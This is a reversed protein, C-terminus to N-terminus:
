GGPEVVMSGLFLDHLMKRDSRRAAVLASVIWWPASAVGLLGAVPAVWGGGGLAAAALAAAWHPYKAATRLAAALWGLSRGDDGFTRLGMLMQGPSAGLAAVSAVYAAAPAAVSLVALGHRVLDGFAITLMTADGLWTALWLLAMTAAAVWLCNISECVLRRDLSAAVMPRAATADLRQILESYSQPRNAPDKELMEALLLAQQASLVGTPPAPPPAKCQKHILDLSNGEFPPRGAIAFYWTLGLAYIDGRHDVWRGAAQEPAMYEPTGLLAGTKTLDSWERAAAAIEPAPELSDSGALSTSSHNAEAEIQKSVGFDLVKVVSEHTMMLNAPKVDRHVVGRQQAAQLGIAAQRIWRLSEEADCPGNRDVRQSLTEGPVYEMALYPQQDHLGYGYLRAINPHSFQALIRAETRFRSLATPSTDRFEIRKIAAWRELVADWALHVAGMGGRGLERVVQYRDVQIRALDAEIRAGAAAQPTPLPCADGWNVTATPTFRKMWQVGSAWDQIPRRDPTLWRTAYLLLAAAAPIWLVDLLEGREVLKAFGFDGILLAVGQVALVGAVVIAIRALRRWAAPRGGSRDGLVLGSVRRGLTGGTSYVMLSYLVCLACTARWPQDWNLYRLVPSALSFSLGYLFGDYVLTGIRDAWAAPERQESTLRQLRDVIAAFSAVRLMVCDSVLWALEPTARRNISRLRRATEAGGARTLDTLDVEADGTLLVYFMCGFSQVDRAEAEMLNDIPTLSLDTIQARGTSTDQRLAARSLRGHALGFEALSRLAQAVDLMSRTAQQHLDRWWPEGDDELLPSAPLSSPALVAFAQAGCEGAELVEAHVAPHRFAALKRVHELFRRRAPSDAELRWVVVSRDLRVDRGVYCKLDGDSDIQEGVSVNAAETGAGTNSRASSASLRLWDLEVEAPPREGAHTPADQPPLTPPDKDAPPLTPADRDADNASPHPSLSDSDPRRKSEDSM